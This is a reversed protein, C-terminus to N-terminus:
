LSLSDRSQQSFLRCKIASRLSINLNIPSELLEISHHHKGLLEALTKTQRESRCCLLVQDGQEQWIRIQESLPPILGRDKRQLGIDQKLVQHNSATLSHLQDSSSFASCLIRAFPAVRKKMEAPLLFLQSPSLAPTEQSESEEHNNIIREHVMEMAQKELEPAFHLLCTERPLFDFLSNLQEAAPYFLPLFFEMGPFRLGAAIKERLKWSEDADWNLEKQLTDFGSLIQQMESSSVAPYCIDSAPLIIAEDLDTVSRQTMPNFGRLSEVTDGFFDLRLPTTHLSKGALFSPPFIDLIGGRVSYEGVSQVLSVQEYGLDTLKNLLEDRDCEEDALLLEANDSLVRAPLTRRMLAEASVVLIFSSHVSEKLRYLTSLRAATTLPDPSLPTYPPIEYGPYSFIPLSTFLKLDEEVQPVMDEDPVICCCPQSEAQLAALLSKSSGRLAPHNISSGAAILSTTFTNLM